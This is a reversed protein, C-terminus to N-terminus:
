SPSQLSNYGSLEGIHKINRREFTQVSPHTMVHWYQRPLRKLSEWLPSSSRLEASEAKDTSQASLIDEEKM